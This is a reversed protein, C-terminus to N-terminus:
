EAGRAGLVEGASVWIPNVHWADVRAATVPASAFLTMGAERAEAGANVDATFAVRGQM